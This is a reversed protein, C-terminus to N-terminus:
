SHQCMLLLSYLVVGSVMVTAFYLVRRAVHIKRRAIIQCIISVIAVLGFKFYTLGPPGWSDLFYRAIPNGEVYSLGTTAPTHTILYRTLYVDLASAVIFLLTEVELPMRQRVKMWLSRIVTSREGHSLVNM